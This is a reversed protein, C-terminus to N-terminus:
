FLSDNWRPYKDLDKENVGNEMIDLIPVRFSEGTAARIIKICISSIDDGDIDIRKKFTYKFCLLRLYMGHHEESCTYVRSGQGAPDYENGCIICETM